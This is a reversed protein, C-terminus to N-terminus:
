GEESVRSPHTIWDLLQVIDFPKPFVRDPSLERAADIIEPPAGSVVAIRAASKAQRLHRLFETGHGDPLEM